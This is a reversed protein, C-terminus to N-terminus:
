PNWVVGRTGFERTAFLDFHLLWDHLDHLHMLLVLLQTALFTSNLLWSIGIQASTRDIAVWISRADETIIAWSDHHNWILEGTSNISIWGYGLLSTSWSVSWSSSTCNLIRLIVMWNEFLVLTARRFDKSLVLWVLSRSTWKSEIFSRYSVLWFSHGRDWGCTLRASWSESSTLNNINRRHLLAEWFVAVFLSTRLHAFCKAISFLWRISSRADLVHM